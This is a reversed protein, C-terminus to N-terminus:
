GTRVDKAHLRGIAFAQPCGAFGRNAEFDLRADPLRRPEPDGGDHDTREASPSEKANTNKVHGPLEITPELRLERLACTDRLLQVVSQQLTEDARRHLEM